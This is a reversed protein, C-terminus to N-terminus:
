ARSSVSPWLHKFINQCFWREKNSETSDSCDTSGDRVSRLCPFLRLCCVNWYWAERRQRMQSHKMKSKLQQTTSLHRETGGKGETGGWGTWCNRPESSSGAAFQECKRGHTGGPAKMVLCHCHCPSCHCCSAGCGPRWPSYSTYTCHAAM